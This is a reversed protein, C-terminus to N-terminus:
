GNSRCDTQFGRDGRREAHARHCQSSTPRSRRWTLAAGCWTGETVKSGEKGTLFPSTCAEATLSTSELATALCALVMELVDSAILRVKSSAVFKNVAVIIRYLKTPGDLLFKRGHKSSLASLLKRSRASLCKM